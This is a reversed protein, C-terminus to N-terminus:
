LNSLFLRSKIMERADRKPFRLILHFTGVKETMFIWISTITLQQNFTHSANAPADINVTDPGTLIALCVRQMYMCVHRALGFHLLKMRSQNMHTEVYTKCVLIKRIGAKRRSIGILSDGASSSQVLSSTPLPRAIPGCQDPVPGEQPDGWPTYADAAAIFKLLCWRSRRPPGVIQYEPRALVGM